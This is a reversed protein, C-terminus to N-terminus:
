EFDLSRSSPQCWQLFIVYDLCMGAVPQEKVHHAVALVKEAKRKKGGLSAFPDLRPKKRIARARSEEEDGDDVEKSAAVAKEEEERVRKKKDQGELKYKLKLAERAAAVSSSSSDPMPAGVGLRCAILCRVVCTVCARAGRLDEYYIM